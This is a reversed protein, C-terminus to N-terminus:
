VCMCVCLHACASRFCSGEISGTSAPAQWSGQLRQSGWLHLCGTLAQCAWKPARQLTSQGLLVECLVWVTCCWSNGVGQQGQGGGCSGPSRDVCHQQLPLPDPDEHQATVPQQASAPTWTRIGGM